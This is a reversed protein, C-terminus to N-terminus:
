QSIKQPDRIMAKETMIKNVTFQCNADCLDCNDDTKTYSIEPFVHQAMERNVPFEKYSLKHHVCNQNQFATTASDDIPAFNGATYPETTITNNIDAIQKDSQLSKLLQPWQNPNADSDSESSPAVTEHDTINFVFPLQNIDPTVGGGYQGPTLPNIFSESTYVPAEGMQNEGMHYYLIVLLCVLVGYLIDKFAYLTILAIAICKGLYSGAVLNFSKTYVVFLFVLLIPLFNRFIDIFVLLKM